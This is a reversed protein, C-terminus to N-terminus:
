VSRAPNTWQAIHASGARSARTESCGAGSNMADDAVSVEVGGSLKLTSMADSNIRDVAIGVRRAFNMLERETAIGERLARRAAKLFLTQDDLLRHRNRPNHMLWGLRALIRDDEPSLRQGLKGLSPASRQRRRAEAEHRRRRHEMTALLVLVVSVVGGLLVFDAVSGAAALM